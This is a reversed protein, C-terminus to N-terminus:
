LYLLSSIIFRRDMTKNKILTMLRGKKRRSIRKNFYINYDVGSNTKECLKLVYDAVVAIKPSGFPSIATNDVSMVVYQGDRRYIRGMTIDFSFSIFSEVTEFSM